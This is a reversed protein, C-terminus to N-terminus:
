RIKFLTHANNATAEAVMEISLGLLEAIKAAVYGVHLPENRKGRFPVPTLYPCDTEILLRELPIHRVVESLKRANAFTVPGGVSIYLGMNLLQELMEISGSYCHFVGRLGAAHTQLIKLMDGHSERNHIVVPKGTKRAITLQRVFVQQQVDRPSFDYHYDLGIEGIAVVKKEAFAWCELQLYDDAVANKADHPHIGVAAYILDNRNALEIGRGSSQMDAGANLIGRMGAARAREIVTERDAAFREDDLHAHSDFLGTIKVYNM